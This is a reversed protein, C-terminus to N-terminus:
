QIMVQLEKILAEADSKALDIQVMQITDGNVNRGDNLIALSVGKNKKHLIINHKLCHFEDLTMPHYVINTPKRLAVVGDRIQEVILNQM